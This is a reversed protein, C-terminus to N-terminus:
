SRAWTAVWDIYIHGASSANPRGGELETETQLVWRMPDTPIAKASNTTWSRGDMTYTLSGPAWEIVATHWDSMATGTDVSWANSSPNGTTDHAFGSAKGGVSGEPFDMEGDTWNDSAPWLLWAVKYGPVQDMKFRVAYRGYTQSAIPPTLAMVQAGSGDSHLYKDLLGDHVSTTTASNYRGNGSTDTGGDYGAWGRYTSAFSGLPAAKTFDESLTQRWGPLDGTPVATGSSVVPAAAAPAQTTPVPAPPPV